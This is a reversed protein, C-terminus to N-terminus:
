LETIYTLASTTKPTTITTSGFNTNERGAEEINVQTTDNYEDSSQKKAHKKLHRSILLILQPIQLLSYGLILGVYGGIYGVLGNLDM